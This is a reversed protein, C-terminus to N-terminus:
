IRVSHSRVGKLRVTLGLRLFIPKKSVRVSRPCIRLADDDRCLQHYSHYPECIVESLLMMLLAPLPVYVLLLMKQMEVADTYVTTEAVPSNARSATEQRVAALM